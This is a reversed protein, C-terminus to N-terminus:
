VLVHDEVYNEETFYIIKTWQASYFFLDNAKAYATVFAQNQIDSSSMGGGGFGCQRFIVCSEHGFLSTFINYLLFQCMLTPM